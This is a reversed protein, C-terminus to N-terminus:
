LMKMTMVALGYLLTAAIVGRGLQWNEKHMAYLFLFLNPFAGIALLGSLSNLRLLEQLVHLISNAGQYRYHLFIVIFVAPLILSPIFGLLFPKTNKHTM